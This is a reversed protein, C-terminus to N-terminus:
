RIIRITVLDCSGKLLEQARFDWESPDRPRAHGRRASPAQNLLEPQAKVPRLVKYSEKYRYTYIYYEYYKYIYIIHM